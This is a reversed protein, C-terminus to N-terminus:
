AALRQKEREQPTGYLLVVGYKTRVDQAIKRLNEFYVNLDYRAAEALRKQADEKMLLLENDQM